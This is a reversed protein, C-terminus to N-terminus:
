AERIVPATVVKNDLLIAMRKGVNKSTLDGFIRTGANNFSVNIIPEGNNNDVGASANSLYRGTLM